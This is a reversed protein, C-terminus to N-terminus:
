QLYRIYQLLSYDRLEAMYAGNVGNMCDDVLGGASCTRAEDVNETM